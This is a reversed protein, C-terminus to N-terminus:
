VQMNMIEKYASLLGNKVAVTYQLSLHAKQQAITLEHTSETKGLAFDVAAEEAEAALKDTEGILNMASNFITEFSEAGADNITRSNNNGGNKVSNLAETYFDLGIGTLGSVDAMM